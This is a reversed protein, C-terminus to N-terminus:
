PTTPQELPFFVGRSWVGYVRRGASDHEAGLDVLQYYVSRLILAELRDRVLVYPRPEGRESSFDIRIPHAADVTVEDDVNTRFRLTQGTGTGDVNLEVATFPADEVVIVGREAPTILWYVGADDRHLVTSFLRILSKRTIPSGHYFWTGDRAIRLGLDLGIEAM